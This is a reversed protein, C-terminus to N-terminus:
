KISTEIERISFTGDDDARVFFVLRLGDDTQGCQDIVFGDDEASSLVAEIQYGTSSFGETIGIKSCEFETALAISKSCKLTRRNYVKGTAHCASVENTNIANFENPLKAIGTPLADASKPAKQETNQAPVKDNAPKEASPTSSSKKEDGSPEMGCATAVMTTALFVIKLIAHNM